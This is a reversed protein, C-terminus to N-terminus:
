VLSTIVNCSLGTYGSFCTCMGTTYDCKGRRGCEYSNFDSLQIETSNMSGPLLNLGTLRPTCGDGCQIDKVVLPHQPGQVNNGDFTINMYIYNHRPLLDSGIQMAGGVGQFGLNELAPNLKLNALAATTVAAINVFPRTFTVTNATVTAVKVSPWFATLVSSTSTCSAPPSITIATADTRGTIVAGAPICNTGTVSMGIDWAGQFSGASCGSITGSGFTLVTCTSTIKFLSIANAGTLDVEAGYGIGHASITLPGSALAATTAAALETATLTAVTIPSSHFNTFTLIVGGGYTDVAAALTISTGSVVTAVTTSSAGGFTLAAGAATTGTVTTGSKVGYLTRACGDINVSNAGVGSYSTCAISIDPDTTGATQDFFSFVNSLSSSATNLVAQVKVHDIVGNPLGQLANTVDLVFDHIQNPSTELVIPLTTFTENLQSKFTLAFTKKALNDVEYQGDVNDVQLHIHQVQHKGTQLMNNRQDMVDTGYMCMRKSCDVDGWEPDCVCGRLKGNDWKTYEDGVTWPELNSYFYGQRWMTSKPDAVFPQSEIDKCQGHGSCDNPCTSRACAKGEYGPFCECDGSERNCIGRNSCEAYKHFTGSKDPSDVWAFEFPCVRQSCDGSLHGM